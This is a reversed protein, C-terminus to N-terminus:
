RFRAGDLSHKMNRQLLTLSTPAPSSKAMFTFETQHIPSTRTPSKTRTLTPTSTVRDVPQAHDKKGKLKKPGSIMSTSPKKAKRGLGWEVFGKGRRNQPSAECKEGAENVSRKRKKPTRPSDGGADYDKLKNM